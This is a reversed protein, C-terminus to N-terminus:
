RGLRLALLPNVEYDGSPRGGKETSTGVRRLVGQKVLFDCVENVAATANNGHLTPHIAGCRAEGLRYQRLMRTNFRTVRHEFLKNCLAKAAEERDPQYGHSFCRKFHPHYYREVLTCAAKMAPLGVETPSKSNAKGHLSDPDLGHKACFDLFMKMASEAEAKSPNKKPDAKAKIALAKKALKEDPREGAAWWLCELVLALRMATGFQKGLWEGESTSEDVYFLRKNRWEDWWHHHYEDASNTLPIVKAASVGDTTPLYFLKTLIDEAKDWDPMSGTAHQGVPPNPFSYLLRATFGGANGAQKKVMAALKAPTANGLVAVNLRPIVIDGRVRKQKYSQNGNWAKIWFPEGQRDHEFSDWWGKIEDDMVIIGRPNDRLTRVTAAITSDEIQIDLGHRDEISVVIEKFPDFGPSKKQSPYGINACWLTAPQKHGDSRSLVMTSNGILAAATALLSNAFYDRNLMFGAADEIHGSWFKGLEALPFTPLNPFPKERYFSLDPEEWGAANTTDADTGNIVRLNV